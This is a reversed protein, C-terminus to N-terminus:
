TATPYLSKVFLIVAPLFSERRNNDFKLFHSHSHGEDIDWLTVNIGYCDQAWSNITFARLRIQRPLASEIAQFVESLEM